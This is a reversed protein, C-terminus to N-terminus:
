AKHQLYYSVMSSIGDSFSVPNKHQLKSLSESCDINFSGYLRNYLAPKLIKIPWRFVKPLYFLRGSSQLNNKIEIMLDETSIRRNDTLTYVGSENLEIIRHILSILNDVHVMARNNHVHKFPMPIGKEALKIFRLLNGKVGPGYVLPPRVIAVKFKESDIQILRQEAIFKSKGYSDTPQCITAENFIQEDGGDGYVKTSSIYIFQKVGEEKAKLALQLTQETNVRFYESEPVAEFQHALGSFHVVVDTTSLDVDEVKTKRLSVTAIDAASTTEVFRSGIFGSAGTM